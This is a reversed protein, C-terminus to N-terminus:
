RSAYLLGNRSSGDWRLRTTFGCGDLLSRLERHDYPSSGDHFEMAVRQIRRLYSSPTSPLILGEAGECDMKLLDIRDIRHEEMLTPMTMAPVGIFEESDPTGSSTRLQHTAGSEGAFLQLEGDTHAVACELIEAHGCNNAVLNRKLYRANEPDPEVAFVRNRTRLAAYVSYVGVNAGIDVVLDGDRVEFGRPSYYRKFYIGSVGRLLNTGQPGEFSVGDWLLVARPKQGADRIRTLERWNRYRRAYRLARELTM